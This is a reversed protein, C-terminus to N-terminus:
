KTNKYFFPIHFYDTAIFRRRPCFLRDWDLVNSQCQSKVAGTLLHQFRSVSKSSAVSEPLLNYIRVLGFISRSMVETHTGDCEDHLQRSHRNFCLRTINKREVSDARPFLSRLSSHAFGLEIKHLLGLLAIDRRTNLLAFNFDLTATRADIGIAHIFSHYLSDLATLRTSTAHYIASTQSEIVPLIHTKFQNVLTSVSYISATRLIAKMKPKAKGLIKDISDDMTLKCDVLPGLLRFTQGEGFYTQLVAFEEKQPDFMM